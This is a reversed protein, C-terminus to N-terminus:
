SIRRMNPASVVLANSNETVSIASGCLHAVASVSVLTSAGSKEHGPAPRHFLKEQCDYCTGNILTERYFCDAEPFIKQVAVVGQLYIQWKDDPIYLETIKGCSCKFQKLM